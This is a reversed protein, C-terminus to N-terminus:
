IKNELVPEWNAGNPAERMLTFTGTITRGLHQGDQSVPSLTEEFSGRIYNDAVVYAEPNPFNAPINQAHLSLQRTFARKFATAQAAVPIPAITADFVNVGQSVTASWLGAPYSGYGDSVLAGTIGSASEVIQFVIDTQAGSGQLVGHWKVDNDVINLTHRSHPGLQYGIGPALIIQLSEVPESVNSDDIVTLGIVTTNGSVTIPGPSAQFDVTNTATIGTVTFNLVTNVPASFTVAVTITKAGESVSSMSQSFNVLPDGPAAQLATSGLLLGAIALLMRRRQRENKSHM